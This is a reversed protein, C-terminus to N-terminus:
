IEPAPRRESDRICQGVFERVRREWFRMAKERNGDFATLIESSLFFIVGSLVMRDNLVRGTESRRNRVHLQLARVLAVVIGELENAVLDSDEHMVDIISHNM